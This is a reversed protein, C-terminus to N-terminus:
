TISVRSTFTVFISNTVSLNKAMVITTNDCGNCHELIDGEDCYWESVLTQLIYLKM